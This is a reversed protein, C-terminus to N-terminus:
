LEAGSDSSKKKTKKKKNTKKKKSSSSETEENACSQECLQAIDSASTTPTAAESSPYGRRAVLAAHRALKTDQAEVLAECADGAGMQDESFRWALEACVADVEEAAALELSLDDRSDLSEARLSKHELEQVVLRCV